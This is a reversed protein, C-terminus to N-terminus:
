AARQGARNNLWADSIRWPTPDTVAIRFVRYRSLGCRDWYVQKAYDGQLGASALREDSWTHGADDSFQMMVQPNLGQGSSLGLGSELLLEFKNYKLLRHEDTIGPAQRLRRIVSGDAESGFTIDMVSLTSTAREGVLHKGWPAYCHVRALGVTYQHNPIDWFGREHWLATAQDDVWTGNATAFNMVTFPHDQDQYPFCEADTITSSRQYNSWAFATAHTSVRDPYYGNASVFIGVGLSTGSLWKIQDDATVVSWPAITGYPIVAGALPQFPNTLTGFFAWIETTETGVLWVRFDPGIVMAQWPDPRLSRAFFNAGAWTSGDNVASFRVIGTVINFALFVGNSMAGQTAIGNLAAIQTLTNLTMDFVYGNSGSTVFLQNGTKGNYSITALNADQTVATAAKTVLGNAFIEYFGTGVIGFVRSGAVKLARWGIDTVQGATLFSQYGPCPYLSLRNPANESESREVYWNMTREADTVVSQSTYSGGIFGPYKM